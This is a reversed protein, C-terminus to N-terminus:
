KAIIGGGICVENDYIVLSQGAAIAAEVVDTPVFRNREASLTGGIRPGHYRYQASYEKGVEPSTLWNTDTLDFITRAATAPEHSVVLINNKIDKSVVYWPGPPADELHVRQGLTSLLAGNHTGVTEGSTDVAVGSESGFESILFDEVSVSGLFCIGQSDRKRANPLKFEQALKRVQSKHMGGLPFLAHDLAEKSIAWLFYSQDKEPDLGRTLAAGAETQITQAYHGTAIFDAGHAKVFEYFAGFKVERNCMIDPNPTRGAKYEGLLYDIVGKRYAESADLTVFPLGLHAAVRM